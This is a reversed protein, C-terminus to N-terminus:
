TPFVKAPNHAMNRRFGYCKTTDQQQEHTTVGPQPTVSVAGRVQDYWWNEENIYWCLFCESLSLLLYRDKSFSSIMEKWMVKGQDDRIEQKSQCKDRCEKAGM